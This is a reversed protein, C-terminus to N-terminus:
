SVEDQQRLSAVFKEVQSLGGCAAKRISDLKVFDDSRVLRPVEVLLIKQYILNFLDSRLEFDVYQSHSPNEPANFNHPSLSVGELFAEPLASYKKKNNKM